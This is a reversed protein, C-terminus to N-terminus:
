ATCGVILREISTGDLTLFPLTPRYYQAANNCTNTFLPLETALQLQRDQNETGAFHM